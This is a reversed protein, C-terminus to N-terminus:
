TLLSSISDVVEKTTVIASAYNPINIDLAAQMMHPGIPSSARRRNQACFVARLSALRCEPRSASGFEVEDDIDRGGSSRSM